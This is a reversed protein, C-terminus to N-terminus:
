HKVDDVEGNLPANTDGGTAADMRVGDHFILELGNAIWWILVSTISAFM